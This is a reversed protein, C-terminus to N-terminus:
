PRSGEVVGRVLWARNVLPLGVRAIEAKTAAEAEALRGPAIREGHVHLVAQWMAEPGPYRLRLRRSRLEVQEFGAQQLLRELLEPDGLSQGNPGEPPPGEAFRATVRGVTVSECERPLGWVALALVGGPRLVRRAEALARGPDPCFMLSFAALAVDQSADPLELAQADMTRVLAGALAPRSRAREVMEPALDVATVRAGARAAREAMAGTGCGIDIVDRGALPGALALLARQGDVLAPTIVADYREAAGGWVRRIRETIAGSPDRM